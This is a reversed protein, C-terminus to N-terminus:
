LSRRTASSRGKIVWRSLLYTCPVTALVVVMPAIFKNLRVVEILVYLLGLGLLYQVFYVIPYQLAKSLRLKEKFVFRANLCYSLFVGSIYSVTYATPYAVYLVFVLYVGYTLATNVGGFFVFRLFQRWREWFRRVGGGLPFKLGSSEYPEISKTFRTSSRSPGSTPRM